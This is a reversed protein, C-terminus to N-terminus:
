GWALALQPPHTGENSDYYESCSTVSNEAADEIMLGNDVGASRVANLLGAIQWKQVVNPASPANSSAPSGTTGPQNQWTVTTDSWAPAVPNVQFVDIPRGAAVSTAYLSLTASAFTCFAGLSPLNFKLLSRANAGQSSISGVSPYTAYNTTPNSQYVPADMAASTLTASGPSPCFSAASSM